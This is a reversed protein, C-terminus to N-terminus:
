FMVFSYWTIMYVYGSSSLDGLDRIYRFNPTAKPKFVRNNDAAVDVNIYAVMNSSILNLYNEVFETSGILGQEQPIIILFM